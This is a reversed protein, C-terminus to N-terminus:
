LYLSSAVMGIALSLPHCLWRGLGETPRMLILLAATLLM